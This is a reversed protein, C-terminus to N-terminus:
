MMYSECLMNLAKYSRGNKQIKTQSLAWWINIHKCNRYHYNLREEIIYTNTTTVNGHVNRTQTITKSRKGTFHGGSINIHTRNNSKLREKHLQIVRLLSWALVKTRSLEKNYCLTSIDCLQCLITIIFLLRFKHNINTQVVSDQFFAQIM